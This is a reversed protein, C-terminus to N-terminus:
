NRDSEILPSIKSITFFGRDMILFLGKLDYTNLYKIFNKITAVDVISNSFATYFLLLGTKQYCAMSLYIFPLNQNNRNYGVANILAECTFWRDVLVYDVRLCRYM